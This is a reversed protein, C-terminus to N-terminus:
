GVLVSIWVDLRLAGMLALGVHLSPCCNYPHDVAYIMALLWTAFGEEQLNPRLVMEVPFALIIFSIVSMTTYAVISRRLIWRSRFLFAPVVSIYYISVYAFVFIPVFHARTLATLPKWTERSATFANLPYYLLSCFGVSLVVRETM